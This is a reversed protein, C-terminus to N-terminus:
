TDYAPLTHSLYSKIAEHRSLKFNRMLVVTIIEPWVIQKNLSTLLLSLQRKVDSELGMLYYEVEYAVDLM